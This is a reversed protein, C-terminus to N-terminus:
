RSKLSLPSCYVTALWVIHRAIDTSTVPMLQWAKTSPTVGTTISPLYQEWRCIGGQSRRKLSNCPLGIVRRAIDALGQDFAHRGDHEAVVVDSLPGLNLRGDGGAVEGAHHERRPGARGVAWLIHPNASLEELM